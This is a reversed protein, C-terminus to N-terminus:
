QSNIHRKAIYTYMVPVVFLTFCTGITMGSAIVLGVDFRSVAGAGTALLLPLVGFVMAFTTMLIPRLRVTASEVIADHISKGQEQLKNAFEVMLIGHKSILGILTILGVETYINISALGLYLPILAGCISMPVSVLVIIPDRFSEFQAALVLYIVILAFAFAYLMSNGEETFQLTPGSYNVSMEHPLLHTASDNLEDLGQGITVGPMLVGQITVSNLQNFQNLVSPQVSSSYTVFTSLPVMKGNATKVNIQNLQQDRERLQDPVQPIVEYSYGGLNFYNSYNGGLMVSLANAIDSMNVGLLAAKNRDINLVLEPQDFMVDTNLFIFLGSQYAAGILQNAYGYISSQPETSTIVYQIPTGNAGPLPPNQIAYLQLGPVATLAKQLQPQLKMITEHRENWPKYIAGAFINNQAPYGAVAFTNQVNPNASLINDLQGNFKTLYNLNAATPASGFILLYGQDEFPALEKKTFMFLFVCSLLVVGGTMLVVPRYKLVGLLKRHYRERVNNFISDIKIVFRGTLLDRNIIKSCLMPSFTLAIVGSLIVAAALTFSFEKFLSGTIGGLFGIPAFVAALTTTMVIVPNAIERAGILAAETPTKGEELHRYINELVVIADDVVLGIALVMALLTLLNLSFGMALMLFAVGVLSLPITVVPILVSRLAGLFLFIVIVVIITAEIITSIVESISARIFSTTNYVVEAHLGPPFTAQIKPLNQIVNDIVSLPNAGTAVFIGGFVAKKDNYYVQADYNQSGLEAHGIDRIRILHGNQNSVVLNDFDAASSIDTNAQLPVYLYQSKLEGAAAQVNNNQLANLLDTATVGLKAMKYSDMWIRMAYQKDGMIKINSIGGLANIKPTFVNAIYASIQEPTLTDSNFGIILDPMTVGTSKQITPSLTGTPLQNLVSDVKGTIDTMAANSDYNLRIYATITSVGLNSTATMYEIGNASGIAAEMPTTVFGQVNQASAGPYSTTVTITTNDMTPYQQLPLTFISTLGLIFILLSVVSSLVPRTVFIDTFRARM